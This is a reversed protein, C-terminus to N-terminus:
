EKSHIIKDAVALAYQAVDGRDLSSLAHITGQGDYWAAAGVPAAPPMADSLSLELKRPLLRWALTGNPHEDLSQKRAEALTYVNGNREICHPDSNAPVAADLAQAHTLGAAEGADLTAANYALMSETRALRDAKWGAWESFHQRVDEAVEAPSGERAMRETLFTRLETRVTESVNRVLEGAHARLKDDLGETELSWDVDKRVRGLEKAGATMTMKKLLEATKESVLKIRETGLKWAAAIKGVDDALDLTDTVAKPLQSYWLSFEDRWLRRMQEALVRMEESEFHPTDPLWPGTDALDLRHGGEDSFYADEPTGNTYNGGDMQADSPPSGFTPVTAPGDKNPAPANLLAAEKAAQEQEAKQEAPSKLPVGFDELMTRTDVGLSLPEQQGIWGLVQRAVTVDRDALGKPVIRVTGQYEPWNAAVLDPVMYQTLHECLQSLMVIQSETFIDGLGEQVNRSSSGGKGEMFAQEPVMCSRLKMVDLYEFRANFIELNGGLELEKIDWERMTSTQDTVPDRLLTSPMAINVGSRIEQAITLAVEANDVQNGTEEDTYKDDPHYVVIPRDARREFARDALAWNYWYSWWFKYAYATRPFGWIRNFEGERENTFWLAHAVDIHSGGPENGTSPIPQHVVGRPIGSYHIGNFEGQPTWSPYAKDPVLPVPNEPLLMRISGHDWVPLEEGPRDPDRYMWDVQELKFRKAMPSFGFDLSNMASLVYSGWIRRISREIGMAIDPRGPAEAYWSSRILPMKTFHLGFAIIADRRMQYMSKFSIKTADFPDAGLIGLVGSWDILDESQHRTSPTQKELLQKRKADIGGTPLKRVQAEM